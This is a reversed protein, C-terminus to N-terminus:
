NDYLVVKGSSESTKALSDKAQLLKLEPEDKLFETQSTPRKKRKKKRKAAEGPAVYWLPKIVIKSKDPQRQM